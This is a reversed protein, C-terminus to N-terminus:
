DHRPKRGRIPTTIGPKARRPAAEHVGSSTLPLDGSSADMSTARRENLVRLFYIAVIGAAAIATTHFVYDVLLIATWGSAARHFNSHPWWNMLLWAVGLYAARSLARSGGAAVLQRGFLLFALGLGFAISPMVVTVPLLLLLVTTPPTAAGAPTRWLLFSLPVAAAATLVAVALSKLGISSSNM